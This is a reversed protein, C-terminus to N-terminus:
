PVGSAQDQRGCERWRRQRLLRAADGTEADYEAGELAVDAAPGHTPAGPPAAAGAATSSGDLDMAEGAAAEEAAPRSSRADHQKNDGEHAV